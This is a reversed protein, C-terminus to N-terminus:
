RGNPSHHGGLPKMSLIRGWIQCWCAWCHQTWTCTIKNGKVAMKVAKLDHCGEFTLIWTAVSRVKFTTFISNGIYIFLLLFERPLRRCRLIKNRKALMEFYQIMIGRLPIVLSSAFELIEYIQIYLKLIYEFNSYHTCLQYSSFKSKEYIDVEWKILSAM